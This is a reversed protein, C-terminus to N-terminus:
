AAKLLGAHLLDRVLRELDARLTERDIEYEAELRETVADLSRLELLLEWMRAGVDNLGYYQQNDINLLVM